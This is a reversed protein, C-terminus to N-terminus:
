RIVLDAALEAFFGGRREFADRRGHAGNPSLAPAWLRSFADYVPTVILTVSFLAVLVGLM